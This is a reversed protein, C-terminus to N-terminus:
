RRDVGRGFSPRETAYKEAEEDARREAAANISLMVLHLDNKKALAQMSVKPSRVDRSLILWDRAEVTIWATPQDIKDELVSSPAADGRQIAMAPFTRSPRAYHVVGHKIFLIACAAPTVDLYRSAAAETTVGYSAALAVVHAIAPKGLSDLSAAMLPKPMLLGAAFRNAQAEQKRHLTDRRNESLDRASCPGDERATKLLFHGLQHAIAFRRRPTSLAASCSIVATVGTGDVLVSSSVVEDSLGRIDTIGVRRAIDEVPVPASIDPHHRFIAALLTEASNCGALETLLRERAM